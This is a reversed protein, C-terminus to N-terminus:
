IIIKLQSNDSELLCKELKILSKQKWQFKAKCATTTEKKRPSFSYNEILSKNQKSYIDIKFFLIIKSDDEEYKEIILNKELQFYPM